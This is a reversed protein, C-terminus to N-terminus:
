ARPLELVFVTGGSPQPVHSITGGGLRQLARRAICLGLGLGRAGLERANTGREFPQYIREADADSIGIGEDAIYIRVCDHGDDVNIAIRSQAPSYLVANTLIHTLALALRRGDCILRAWGTVVIEHGVTDRATVSESVIEALERVDVDTCAPLMAPDDPDALEALDSLEVLMQTLKSSERVIVSLANSARPNDTLGRQLVQAYGHISTLPTRLEHIASSPLGVTREQRTGVTPRSRRERPREGDIQVSGVVRQVDQVAHDYRSRLMASLPEGVSM